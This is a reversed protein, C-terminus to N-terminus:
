YSLDDTDTIVRYNKEKRLIDLLKEALGAYSEECNEWYVWGEAVEYGDKLAAQMAKYAKEDPDIGREGAYKALNELSVNEAELDGLFHQLLLDALKERGEQSIAGGDKRGLLFSSSSSNTVFDIRIKM